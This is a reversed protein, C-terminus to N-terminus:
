LDRQKTPLESAKGTWNPPRREIFARVGERADESGMLMRHYDTEREGVGARDLDWSEWLLQKSLAASQPAVNAAIDQAMALAAPLVEDAALVRSGIGLEIARHGDFTAGTLLIEAARATGVLRPLVWHSYADGLVGRRAQVVGYKADAAFIRIDCQLAITLGIGIAHGNVAAIVPKRIDWAPVELGAASFEGSPTGFTESGAALDAGACFAPPAGTLVVARVEDTSDCFRYAAGLDARMAANFANRTQPVSLTITAVGADVGLTMTSLTLRHDM